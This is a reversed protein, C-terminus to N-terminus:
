RRERDLRRRLEVDSRDFDAYHFDSRPRSKIPGNFTVGITNAKNAISRPSRNLANAIDETTWDPDPYTKRVFGVESKNWPKNPRKKLNLAKAWARVTPKAIAFYDAIDILSLDPDYWLEKFKEVQEPSLKPKVM